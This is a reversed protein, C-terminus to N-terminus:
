GSESSNRMQVSAQRIYPDQDEAFRDALAGADPPRLRALALIAQRRCYADPDELGARLLGEAGSGASGLVSYVQWRVQPFSSQALLSLPQRCREIHERAFDAMDETEESISWCLEVNKIEEETLSPEVM